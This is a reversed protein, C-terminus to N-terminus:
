IVGGKRGQILLVLDPDYEGCVLLEDRPYVFVTVLCELVPLDQRCLAIDASLTCLAPYSPKGHPVPSIVTEAFAFLVSEYLALDHHMGAGIGLSHVKDLYETEYALLLSSHHFLSEVLDTFESLVVGRASLEFLGTLVSRPRDGFISSFVSIM